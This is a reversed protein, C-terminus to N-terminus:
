LCFIWDPQFMFAASNLIKDSLGGLIVHTEYFFQLFPLRFKGRTSRNTLSEFDADQNIRIKLPAAM